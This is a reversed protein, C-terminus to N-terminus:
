QLTLQGGTFVSAFTKGISVGLSKNFEELWSPRYSYDVLNDQQIIERAVYDVSGYDDILGLAKATEGSWFLGTFIDPDESLREGRGDKVTDIFQQHVINLMKQAHAQQTPETPLFPDLISKNEGATLSRREIGIKDLMGVFGFSDMRVGISGVISSKNAYIDEAAVAVYYCGSACVDSMVAFFPKNPYRNRLRLIEDNIEASQVPSGGPSNLHLIVAESQKSEFANRLSYNIQNAYVGGDGGIVGNLKVVATHPKSANAAGGSNGAIGFIAILYLGGLLLFIIKFFRRWKRDKMYDEALRELIESSAVPATNSGPLGGVNKNRGFM